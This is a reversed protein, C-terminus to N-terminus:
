AFIGYSGSVSKSATAKAAPTGFRITTLGFFTFAVVTFSKMASAFAPVFRKLMADEPLPVDIWREPSSKL